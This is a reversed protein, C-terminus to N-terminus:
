PEWRFGWTLMREVVSPAMMAILVQLRDRMTVYAVRPEKYAARLLVRAVVEPHVGAPVFRRRRIHGQGLRRAAFDTRTTGPRVLTVAVGSGRVEMRLAETLRDLAAKSAAYGGTYPLTCIGLVSSVNIIQGRRRQRMAPMAAQLIYMPGMVNVAFVQALDDLSLTEVPGAVGVGANNILIDIHGYTSVVREVLAQAQAAIAVDTAVVMPRGPLKDALHELTDASRAALIVNAGAQAFTQTTAKGIGSSAGTIVVTKGRPDLYGRAETGHM